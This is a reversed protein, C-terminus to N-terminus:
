KLRYTISSSMYPAMSDSSGYLFIYGLIVEIEIREGLNEEWFLQALHQYVQTDGDPDGDYNSATPYFKDDEASTDVGLGGYYWKYYDYGNDGQSTFRYLFGYSRKAPEDYKLRIAVAATDPGFPSGLWGQITKGGYGSPAVLDKRTWSYSISETDMIYLWPNSYMAEVYISFFGQKARRVYEVGAMGGFANPISDADGGGQTEWALQFQNMVFQGFCRLGKVPVAEIKLAFQTGVPSGEEVDYDDRWGAYSHYIM